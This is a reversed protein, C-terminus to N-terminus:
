EFLRLQRTDQVQSEIQGNALRTLLTDGPKVQAPDKIIKGTKKHTTLSYGRKLVEAPNIAHLRTALLDIRRTQTQLSQTTARSLRQALATIKQSALATLHRPHRERLRSDFRTLQDRLRRLRVDAAHSLARQRDDILQRLQNVRDLPRRFLEHREIHLLRQRAHQLTGQMERALRQTASTLTTQATRWHQTAVQAAETPTHAHHDAALDAISVDIEHGIGTVIPIRSAAIARSLIEENFEWLDELSGGGRGLLILDITQRADNLHRLAAIIQEASGDGQVQVHYVQV